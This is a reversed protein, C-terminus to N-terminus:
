FFDDECKMKYGVRGVSEEGGMSEYLGVRVSCIRCYETDPM